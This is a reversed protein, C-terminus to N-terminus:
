SPASPARAASARRCARAPVEQPGRVAVGGPVRPALARRQQPQPRARHDEGRAGPRRVSAPRARPAPRRAVGAPVRAPRHGPDPRGQRGRDRPRHDDRRLAHGRRDPGVRARVARAEQVPDPPRGQGGEAPRAGRDHRRGQRGREPRRRPPDLAGQCPIVGESKYGIDLLVEDRDIKVVTGEVIDGDNFDRLSEEMAVILEEPTLDREPAAATETADIPESM